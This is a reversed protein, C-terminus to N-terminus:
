FTIIEPQCKYHFVGPHWLECLLHIM